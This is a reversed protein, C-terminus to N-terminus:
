RSINSRKLKVWLKMEVCWVMWLMAVEGRERLFLQDHRGNLAKNAWDYGLTMSYYGRDTIHIILFTIGYSVALFLDNASDIQM